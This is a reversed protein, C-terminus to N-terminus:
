NITAKKVLDLIQDVQQSFTLTSTDIEIADAVKILPSEARTSDVQDRSELNLKIEELSVSEGKEQLELQRRKARTEVNATMFLKLEAAPFVVSGIDRGDLVVGKKRGLQQQQAVLEARIEKVTAVESVRESVRMTRIEKELLYVNPLYGLVDKLHKETTAFDGNYHEHNGMIYIVHPFQASCRQMFDHYRNSRYDPGMVGHPDCQTIDKAVLIDGSLILVEADNNNTLDLDGFELHVDSAVAIKM